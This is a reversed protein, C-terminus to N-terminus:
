TDSAKGRMARAVIVPIALLSALFYAHYWIPFIPWITYHYPAFVAFMLIGFAWPAIRSAPAVRVTIVSAIILAVTSEALRAIMMPLTFTMAAFAAAYDPWFHRMTRDIVTVVVLWVVIGAVVGLVTRVM